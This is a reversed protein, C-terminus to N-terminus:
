KSGCNTIDYPLTLMSQIRSAQQTVWTTKKQMMKYLISPISAKGVSCNMTQKKKVIETQECKTVYTFINVGSCHGYIKRAKSWTSALDFEALAIYPCQPKIEVVKVKFLSKEFHNM